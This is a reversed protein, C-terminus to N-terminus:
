KIGQVQRVAVQYMGAAASYAHNALLADGEQMAAEAQALKLLADPLVAAARARALEGVAVSKAALTLLSKQATLDGSHALELYLLAQVIKELAANLNGQELKDLAGNTADSGQGGQLKDIAAKVAPDGALPALSEVVGAIAGSADVVEVQFTATAVGGDDDTVRLAITFTGPAGYVHRAGVMGVAEGLCDSFLEFDANADVTGDGWDISAIHTDVRGVDDFSGALQVVLGMLAVPVDDGISAGTEDTLGGIQAAPAVNMATVLVQDSGQAGHNDTVTFEFTYAGDDVPAFSLSPTTVDEVFQGNNSSVMHWRVTHTDDANLDTFSGNLTVLSAENVVRDPGANAVPPQNPLLITFCIRSRDTDDGQSCMQVGCTGTLDGSIAGTAVDVNLWIAREEADPDSETFIDSKDDPDIEGGDDDDWLEIKVSATGTFGVNRAFAWGPYIPAYQNDADVTIQSGENTYWVDNIYVNVFYDPDNEDHGEIQTVSDITLTLESQEKVTESFLKYLGAIARIGHLYAKARIVSLECDGDQPSGAATCGGDNSSLWSFDMWEQPDTTDGPDDDSAFFDGVQATTYFLYYLESVGDPIEVPGLSQLFAIEDPSLQARDISLYNDDYEDPYVHSDEHVHAPVTMDGMLHAVHGLYEYAAMYDGAYYEGLAMGWMQRAKVWASWEECFVSWAKHVKTDSGIDPDWFHTITVCADTRDFVHDFVDEHSAGAEIIPLYTSIEPFDGLWTAARAMYEHVPEGTDLAKYATVREPGTALASLCLVALAIRMKM